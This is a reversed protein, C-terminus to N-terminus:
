VGKKLNTCSIATYNLDIGTHIENIEFSLSEQVTLAVGENRTKKRNFNWQLM